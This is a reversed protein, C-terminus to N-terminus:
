RLKNYKLRNDIRAVPIECGEASHNEYVDCRLQIAAATRRVFAAVPQTSETECLAVFLRQASPDDLRMSKNRLVNDWHQRVSFPRRNVNPTTNRLAPAAPCTHPVNHEVRALPHRAGYAIGIIM